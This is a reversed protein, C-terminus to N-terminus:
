QPKVPSRFLPKVSDPDAGLYRKFLDHIFALKGPWFGSMDEFNMDSFFRTDSILLLAALLARSGGSDHARRTLLVVAGAAEVKILENVGRWTFSRQPVVFAVRTTTSRQHVGIM